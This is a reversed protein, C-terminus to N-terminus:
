QRWVAAWKNFWKRQWESYFISCLIYVATTDRASSNGKCTLLTVYCLGVDLDSSKIFCQPGSILIRAWKRQHCTKQRGFSTDFFPVRCFRVAWLPFLAAISLHPMVTWFSCGSGSAVQTFLPPCMWQSPSGEQIHKGDVPEARYSPYSLSKSAPCLNNGFM